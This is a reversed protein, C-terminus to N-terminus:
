WVELPNCGRVVGKLFFQLLPAGLAIFGARMVALRREWLVCSKGTPLTGAAFSSDGFRWRIVDRVVGKLFFQPLLAEGRNCVWWVWRPV